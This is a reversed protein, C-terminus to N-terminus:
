ISGVVLGLVGCNSGSVGIIGFGEGIGLGVMHVVSGIIRVMFAVVAIYVLM